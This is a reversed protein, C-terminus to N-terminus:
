RGLNDYVKNFLKQLPGPERNKFAYMERKEQEKKLECAGIERGKGNLLLGKDRVILDLKVLKDIHRNITKESVKLTRAIVKNIIKKGRLNWIMSIIALDLLDLDLNSNINTGLDRTDIRLIM